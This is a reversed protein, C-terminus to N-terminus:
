DLVVLVEELRYFDVNSYVLVKKEISGSKQYAEGVKGVFLGKPILRSFGSTVVDDGPKVRSHSPLFRVWLNGKEDPILIGVERTSVIRVSLGSDRDILLRVLSYFSHVKEIKGVLGEPSLVALGKKIGDVSGRDIIIMAEDQRPSYGVVRAAMTRYSFKEKFDLLLRLRQNEKELELLRANKEKLIKNEKELQENRAKLTKYSVLEDKAVVFGERFWSFPTLVYFLVASISTQIQHTFGSIGERYFFTFGLFALSLLVIFVTLNFGRRLKRM